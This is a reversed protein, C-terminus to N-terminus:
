VVVIVGIAAKEGVGLAGGLRTDIEVSLDGRLVLASSCIVIRIILIRVLVSAAILV